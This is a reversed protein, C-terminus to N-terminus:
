LTMSRDELNLNKQGIFEEIKRPRLNIKKDEDTEKPELNIKDKKENM